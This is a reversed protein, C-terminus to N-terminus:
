KYNLHIQSNIVETIGRRSKMWCGGFSFVLTETTSQSCYYCPMNKRAGIMFSSTADDKKIYFDRLQYAWPPKNREPSTYYGCCRLCFRFPNWTGICFPIARHFDSNVCKGGFAQKKSQVKKETSHEETQVSNGDNHFDTHTHTHARARTGSSSQATTMDWHSVVSASAKRILAM